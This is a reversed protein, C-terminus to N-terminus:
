EIFSTFGQTVLCKYMWTMKGLSRPFNTTSIDIGEIAGLDFDGRSIQSGSLYHILDLIADNLKAYNGHFKPLVKQLVQIDLAAKEVETGGDSVCSKSLEIFRSIESITRYAFHLNYPRLIGLIAKIIDKSNDSLSDFASLEPKSYTTFNPFSSLKFGTNIPEEGLYVDNFEIVNARDLVKPSFMHTTDDINVTGTVYFNLPIEITSSIEDFESDETELSDSSAHLNIGEQEVSGDALATRSEICSLFDSFYHEVRSLNMEDLILFFPISPNDAARLMFRLLQTMVYKGTLPNYYGFLETSDTWNSKVPIFCTTSLESNANIQDQRAEEVISDGNVSVIELKHHGIKKLKLVDGIGYNTNFFHRYDYETAEGRKSKARLRALPSRARQLYLGMVLEDGAPTKITIPIPPCINDDSGIRRLRDIELNLDSIEQQELIAPLDSFKFNGRGDERALGSTVTLLIYDIGAVEQAPAAPAVVHLPVKFLQAIKTKGTGSIGSLIVFPKASLSIAYRTLIEDTFVFNSNKYNEYFEDTSV